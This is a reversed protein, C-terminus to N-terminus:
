QQGSLPRGVPTTIIPPLYDAMAITSSLPLKTRQKGMIPGWTCHNINMNPMYQLEITKNQWISLIVLAM